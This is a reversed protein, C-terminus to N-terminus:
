PPSKEFFARVDKAIADLQGADITLNANLQWNDASEFDALAVKLTIHGLTDMTALMELEGELSGCKKEVTWGKWERAMSGFFEIFQKSGEYSWVRRKGNCRIGKVTVDFYDGVFDSFELRTDSSTSKISVTNASM